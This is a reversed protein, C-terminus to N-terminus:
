AGFFKIGGHSIAIGLGIWFGAWAIGEGLKELGYGHPTSEPELHQNTALLTEYDQTLEEAQAELEKIREDLLEKSM